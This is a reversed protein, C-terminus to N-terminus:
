RENYDGAKDVILSSDDIIKFKSQDCITIRTDFNAPDTSVSESDSIEEDGHNEVNKHEEKYQELKEKAEEARKEIERRRSEHVEKIYEPLQKFKEEVEEQTIIGKELLINLIICDRAIAEELKTYGNLLDEVDFM